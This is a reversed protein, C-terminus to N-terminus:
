PFNYHPNDPDFDRDTLGVNLRLDRYNYEEELVPTDTGNEPWTWAAYRIPVNLERDIFIQARYFDFYPRKVPHTIQIMRCPRGDVKANDFFQM